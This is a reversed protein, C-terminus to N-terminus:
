KEQLDEFGWEQEEEVSAEKIYTIEVSGCLCGQIRDLDDILNNACWSGLNRHNFIDEATWNEPVTDVYTIVAQLVVTRSRMVCDEKHEEGVLRGCYFCRDPKGAPRPGHKETVPHTEPHEM